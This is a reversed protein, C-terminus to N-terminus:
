ISMYKCICTYTYTYMHMHVYIYLCFHSVIGAPYPSVGIHESQFMKHHDLQVKTNEGSAWYMFSTKPRTIPNSTPKTMQSGGTRHTQNTYDRQNDKASHLFRENRPSEAHFGSPFINKNYKSSRTHPQLSKDSSHSKLTNNAIRKDTDEDDMSGTHVLLSPSPNM